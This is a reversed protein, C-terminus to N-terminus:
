IRDGNPLVSKTGKCLDRWKGKTSKACHRHDFGPPAAATAECASCQCITVNPTHNRKM